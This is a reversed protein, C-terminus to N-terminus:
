LFIDILKLAIFSKGVFHGYHPKIYSISIMAYLVEKKM